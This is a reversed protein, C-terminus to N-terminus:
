NCAMPNEPTDCSSHPTGYGPQTGGYGQGQPAALYTPQEHEPASPADGPRDYPPYNQQYNPADNQSADNPGYGPSYYAPYSAWSGYPYPQPYGYGYPPYPYCGSFLCVPLLLLVRRM